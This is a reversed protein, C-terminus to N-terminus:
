FAYELIATINKNEHQMAIVAATIFIFYLSSCGLEITM